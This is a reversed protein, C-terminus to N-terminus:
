GFAVGSAQRGSGSGLELGANVFSESSQVEIFRKKSAEFIFLKGMSTLFEDCSKFGFVRFTGLMPSTLVLVLDLLTSFLALAQGLVLSEGSGQSLLSFEHFIHLSLRVTRFCEQVWELFLYFSVGFFDESTSALACIFTEESSTM